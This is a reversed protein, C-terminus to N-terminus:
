EDSSMGDTSHEQSSIQYLIYLSFHSKHGIHDLGGAGNSMSYLYTLFRRQLRCYDHYNLTYRWAAWLASDYRTTHDNISDAM